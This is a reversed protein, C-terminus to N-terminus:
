WLSASFVSVFWGGPRLGGDDETQEAGRQTVTGAAGTQRAEHPRLM